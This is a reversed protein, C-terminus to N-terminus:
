SQGELTETACGAVRKDGVDARVAPRLSAVLGRVSEARDLGDVAAVLRSYREHDLLTATARGAKAAVLGRLEAASRPSPYDVADLTIDAGDVRMHIAGGFEIRPDPEVKILHALRRVDQDHVLQEDFELPSRAIARALSAAICFAVSYQAEVLSRPETGRHSPEAAAASSIVRVATISSTTPRDDGDFRRDIAYAFPQAYGHVPALKIIMRTGIWTSGLGEVVREVQPAPSFAHFYGAPNELVDAPGTVGSGALLASELGLQGARAPHLRKTMAGTTSFAMLGASSSAAIGLAWAIREPDLELLWSAAAAAGLTGNIGPNHFGRISEVATTSARGIRAAVEYGVVMATLLDRGSRGLKATLALVAPFVSAAPHANSGVHEYEFDGIAVGNLLVAAPLAAARGTGILPSEGTGYSDALADAVSQYAPQRTGVLAVAANDLVFAKAREVIESPLDDARVAAVFSALAATPGM